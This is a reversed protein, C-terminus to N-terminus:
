GRPWGGCKRIAELLREHVDGPISSVRSSRHLAITREFTRVMARADECSEVHEEFWALLEGDLEGDFHASLCEMFKKCEEPDLMAKGRPAPM